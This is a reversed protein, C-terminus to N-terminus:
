DERERGESEENKGFGCWWFMDTTWIAVYVGIKINQLEHTAARPIIFSDM